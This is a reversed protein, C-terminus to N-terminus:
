LDSWRVDALHSSPLCHRGLLAFLAVHSPTLDTSPPHTRCPKPARVLVPDVMVSQTISCLMEAPPACVDDTVGHARRWRGRTAEVRWREVVAQAKRMATEVDAQTNARCHKPLLCLLQPTFYQERLQQLTSLPGHAGHSIPTANQEAQPVAARIVAHLLKGLLERVKSLAPAKVLNGRRGSGGNPLWQASRYLSGSRPDPWVSSKQLRVLAASSGGITNGEVGLETPTHLCRLWGQDTEGFRDMTTRLLNRPMTSERAHPVDPQFICVDCPEDFCEAEASDVAVKLLAITGGLDSQALSRGTVSGQWVRRPPVPGAVDSVESLLYEPGGSAGDELGHILRNAEQEAVYLMLGVRRLQVVRDAARRLLPVRQLMHVDRPLTPPPAYGTVVAERPAARTDDEAARVAVAAVRLSTLLAGPGVCARSIGSTHTSLQERIPDLARNLTSAISMLSESPGDQERSDRMLRRERFANQKRSLYPNTMDSSKGQPHRPSCSHSTSSEKHGYLGLGQLDRTGDSARETAKSARAAERSESRRFVNPFVLSGSTMSERVLPLATAFEIADPLEDFQVADLTRRLRRTATAMAAQRLAAMTIAPDTLTELDDLPPRTDLLIKTLRTALATETSSTVSLPLLAGHRIAIAALDKYPMVALQRKLSSHRIENIRGDLGNDLMHELDQLIETNVQAAVSKSLEDGRVLLTSLHHKERCRMLLGEHDHLGTAVALRSAAELAGLGDRWGSACRNAVRLAEEAATLAALRRRAVALIPPEDAACEHLRRGRDVPSTDGDASGLPLPTNIALALDAARDVAAPEKPHTPELAQRVLTLLAEHPGALSLPGDATSCRPLGDAGCQREWLERGNRENPPSTERAFSGNSELEAYRAELDNWEVEASAAVPCWPNAPSLWASLKGGGCRLMLKMADDVTLARIAALLGADSLSAGGLAQLLVDGLHVDAGLAASMLQEDPAMMEAGHTKHARILPDEFARISWSLAEREGRASTRELAELMGHWMEVSAAPPSSAEASVGGFISSLNCVGGPSPAANKLARRHKAGFHKSSSRGHHGVTRASAQYSPTASAKPTSANFPTYMTSVPKWSMSHTMVEGAPTVKQEWSIQAERDVGCGDKRFSWRPEGSAKRIEREANWTAETLELASIAAGEMTDAGVQTLAGWSSLGGAPIPASLNDWEMAKLGLIGAAYQQKADLEAWALQMVHGRQALQGGTPWVQLAVREQESVEGERYWPTTDDDLQTTSAVSASASPRASSRQSALRRRNTSPVAPLM